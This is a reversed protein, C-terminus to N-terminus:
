IRRISPITNTNFQTFFILDGLHLTLALQCHGEANLAVLLLGSEKYHVHVKLQIGSIAICEVAM